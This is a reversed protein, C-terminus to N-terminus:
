IFNMRCDRFTFFKSGTGELLISVYPRTKVLCVVHGGKFEDVNGADNEANMEKEQAADPHNEIRRQQLRAPHFDHRMYNVGGQQEARKRQGPLNFLVREHMAPKGGLYEAQDSIDEEAGNRQLAALGLLYAHKGPSRRQQDEAEDHPHCGRM